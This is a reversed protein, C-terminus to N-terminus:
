EEDSKMKDVVFRLGEQLFTPGLEKVLDKGAAKFEEKVTNIAHDGLRKMDEPAIKKSRGVEKQLEAIEKNAINSAVIMLSALAQEKLRERSTLKDDAAANRASAAKAKLWSGGWVLLPIIIVPLAWELISNWDM